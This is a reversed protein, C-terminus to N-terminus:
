ARSVAPADGPWVEAGDLLAAALRPGLLPAFKFLNGGAFAAVPGDRWLAFADDERGELRTTLRLTEGVPDPDLGPFARRAYAIIRERAASVDTGPAVADTGPAGEPYAELTAIGLGYTEPGTPVGYVREGYTESRDSWSPLPVGAADRRRFMLRLHARRHQVVPLGAAGALRDTGAGACVLCRASAHEGDATRLLAADGEATVSHVRTRRLAPGAWRVLAAITAETRTAGGLPDLLLPEAPRAILPLRAVAEGPDFETAPVGADRLFALDAARDGGLRLWGDTLLLREGARQSWADWAARAEVALAALQPTAVLHRFVRAPGGSQAHGPEADEFCVVDVGRERLAHTVSLGVIGAGVVAVDSSTTAM